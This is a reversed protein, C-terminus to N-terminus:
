AEHGLDRGHPPRAFYVFEFARIIISNRWRSRRSAATSTIVAGRGTCRRSAARLRDHFCWARPPWRTPLAAKSAPRVRDAIWLTAFRSCGHGAIFGVVSYAGPRHSVGRGGRGPLRRASRETPRARWCERVNSSKGDCGSYLVRL